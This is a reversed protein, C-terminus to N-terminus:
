PHPLKSFCKKKSFFFCFVEALKAESQGALGCGLCGFTKQKKKEFFFAKAGGAPTDSELRIPILHNKVPPGGREKKM